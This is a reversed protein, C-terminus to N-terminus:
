GLLFHAYRSVIDCCEVHVLLTTPTHANVRVLVQTDDQVFPDSCLDCVPWEADSVACQEDTHSVIGPPPEAKLM